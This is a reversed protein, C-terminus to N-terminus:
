LQFRQFFYSKNKNIDGSLDFVSRMLKFSQLDTVDLNLHFFESSYM